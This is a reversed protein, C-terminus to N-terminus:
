LYTEINSDCNHIDNEKQLYKWNPDTWFKITSTSCLVSKAGGWFFVSSLQKMMPIETICHTNYLILDWHPYKWEIVNNGKYM